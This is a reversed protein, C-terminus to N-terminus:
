RGVRRLDGPCDLVGDRDLRDVTEKRTEHCHFLAHKCALTARADRDDAAARAPDLEHKRDRVAQAAFSGLCPEVWLIQAENENGGPRLDQWSKRRRETGSKALDEVRPVDGQDRTRRYGLDLRSPENELVPARNLGVLKKPGRLCLRGGPQRLGVKREVRLTEDPNGRREQRFPVILHKSGSIHDRKRSNGFDPTYATRAPGIRASLM